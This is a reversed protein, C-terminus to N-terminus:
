VLMSEVDGIQQFHLRQASNHPPWLSTNSLLASLINYNTHRPILFVRCKLFYTQNSQYTTCNNQGRDCKKYEFMYIWLLHLIIGYILSVTTMDASSSINYLTIIVDTGAFVLWQVVTPSINKWASCKFWFDTNFDTFNQNLNYMDLYNKGM